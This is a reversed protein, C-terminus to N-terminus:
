NKSKKYLEDKFIDELEILFRSDKVKSENKYDITILDLVEKARTMGVYFLRREEELLNIQGKEFAEISNFTPFDGEILDIIYVKKFELGKASHITSLTVGNKEKRSRYTIYDLYKLRGLFEKINNTNKAILKLNFM